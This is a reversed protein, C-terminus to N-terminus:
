EPIFTFFSTGTFTQSCSKIPAEKKNNLLKHKSYLRDLKQCTM